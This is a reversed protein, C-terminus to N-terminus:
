PPLLLVAIFKSSILRITQDLNKLPIRGHDTMNGGAEDNGAEGEGGGEGKCLGVLRLLGAHFMVHDPFVALAVLGSAKQQIVAGLTEDFARNIRAKEKQPDKRKPTLRAASVKGRCGQFAMKDAM